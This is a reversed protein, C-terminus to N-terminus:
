QKVLEMFWGSPAISFVMHTGRPVAAFEQARAAFHQDNWAPHRWDRIIGVPMVLLAILATRQLWGTRAYAIWALSVLFSLMPILWYRNCAGPAVMIQWQPTTLSCLPFRLAAAALVASFGVFVEIRDTREAPLVGDGGGGPLRRGNLVDRRDARRRAAPDANGATAGPVDPSRPDGRFADADRRAPRNCEDEHEAMTLLIVLGQAAAGPLLALIQMSLWRRRRFWWLVIAIPVLLIVTVGALSFLVLVAVDFAKWGPRDAPSACIVMVALITMHVGTAALNAFVELSSPLALYGFAMLARVPVRGIFDFRSSLLLSVPLVILALSIVNVVFPAASLPFLSALLAILRQFIQLYGAHPVPMLMSALGYNYAEAFFVTGGEASFQAHLLADPRRSVAIGFAAAFVLLHGTARGIASDASRPRPSTM